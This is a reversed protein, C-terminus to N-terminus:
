FRSATIWTDCRATSEAFDADVEPDSKDQAELAATLGHLSWVNHPHDALETRYEQEAEAYRGAEMLAAGLWHRAAYPIPEPEDYPQEDDWAAAKRFAAIAGELDDKERLIEGELIEASLGMTQKASHMRFQAESNEALDRVKALYEKAKAFNGQRLNAYGQAFDWYGGQVEGEPRNRVELIEDFRGFRLLTLVQFSRGGSRPRPKGRGSSSNQLRQYRSRSRRRELAVVRDVRSARRAPVLYAVVSAAVSQCEPM